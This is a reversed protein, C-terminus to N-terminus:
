GTTAGTASERAQPEAGRLEDLTPCPELGYRECQETTPGQTLSARTAFLLEDPDLTILVIDGNQTTVVLHADGQWAVGKVPRNSHADSLEFEAVRSKSELDWIRVQGTGSGTALLTGDASQAWARTPGAHIGPVSAAVVNMRQADIWLLDSGEGDYTAGSIALVYDGAATQGVLGAYPARDLFPTASDLL